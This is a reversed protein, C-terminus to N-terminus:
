KGTNIKLQAILGINYDMYYSLYFKVDKVPFDTTTIRGRTVIFYTNNLVDIKSRPLDVDIMDQQHPDAIGDNNTDSAGEIKIEQTFLSDLLMHNQDLLYIQSSMAVPFSNTINLRVIVRELEEPAPLTTSLYDFSMTDFLVLFEGKGWLPLEVAATVEYNSDHNIFTTSNGAAPMIGASASMSISDPNSALLVPLNSNTRDIVISDNITQGAQSLLPYGITRPNTLSPVGTGTLSIHNNNRDVAEFRSFSLSLPVGVSNSFLLKLKPDYFEFQGGDIKSFFDTAFNFAPLSISYGSFDGYITEYSLGTMDVQTSLISSGANVPGSPNQLHISLICKLINNGGSDHGPIISYGALNITFDPNSFNRTITYPQGNLQLGPLLYTVTGSINASNIDVTLNGTLLHISDLRATTQVLTIPVSVTDTIDLSAGPIILNIASGTTNILTNNVSIPTFSLLDSMTGSVVSTSYYLSLFGDNAIHLQDSYASDTLYKEIELHSYGVPVALGPKLNLSADFKAPDFEEKVCASLIVMILIILSFNEIYKQYNNM